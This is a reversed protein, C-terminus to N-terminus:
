HHADSDSRLQEKYWVAFGACAKKIIKNGFHELLCEKIFDSEEESLDKQLEQILPGIDMTSHTLAGVEELHQVVKNWRAETKLQSAIDFIVDHYNPQKFEPNRQHKERFEDSVMKGMLVKSQRDLQGYNKIVIGEIPVDGLISTNDMYQVLSAFSKVEGHYYEPVVELGLLEAVDKVAQYDLYSEELGDMVDFLIIHNLPVRDYKLTNHKPKRLVEGRYTWGEILKDKNKECWDVAEAFLNSTQPYQSSGRSRCFLEGDRVGFSFQSGDIKEQVSVVGKLLDATEAHGINYVKSYSPLKM